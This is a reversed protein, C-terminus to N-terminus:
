FEMGVGLQLTTNPLSDKRGLDRSFGLNAYLGSNIPKFQLGAVVNVWTKDQPALTTTFSSGNLGAKISPTDNQWEKVWRTTLYPQWDTAQYRLDVGVGSRISKETRAAFQMQTIGKNRENFAAIDTKTKNLDAVLAVALENFQWEYGAFLGMSLSQAETEGSQQHTSQGIYAVRQTTLQTNNIQLASALWWNEADYRLAASLVRNKTDVNILGSQVDQKQQSAVLALQWQPNFQVKAGVHLSHGGKQKQYAVITDVTQETQLKLRNRNSETRIFDFALDTQQQVIPVLIAMDKPTQLVNLIYDSMAKHAKPGPHFSDAFLRQNAINQDTPNCAAKNPDATSEQCVVATTNTLGYETPRAIMDKLLGDTDIRVINGGVQNLAATISANLLATAQAAQQVIEKYEKILTQAIGKADYGAQSLLWQTIGWRSNYFDEAAKELTQIRHKEFEETNNTPQSLLQEVAGKFSAIFDAQKILGLSKSQIQAGAAAGLKDFFEPTYTINPITPAIIQNVGAQQLRGWQQAMTQAMEKISSLVYAQKEEPTTKTVATALVTALDNGGAWLVHLAEKKVPAQLYNNVQQSLALNPQATIKDNHKGVIVGGSYAYSNGGQTSPTLKNGLSQALYEDYLLHYRGDADLYSAKKNWGSQGMDSLSDGFVVVDQALSATSFVCLLACSLKSIKM